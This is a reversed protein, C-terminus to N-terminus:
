YKETSLTYSILTGVGFAMLAFEPSKSVAYWVTGVIAGVPLDYWNSPKVHFIRIHVANVYIWHVFENINMKHVNMELAKIILFLLLFGGAYVASLLPSGKVIFDTTILQGVTVGAMIMASLMTGTKYKIITDADM